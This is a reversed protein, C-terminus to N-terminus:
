PEIGVAPMEVLVACLRVIAKATWFMVVGVAILIVVSPLDNWIERGINHLIQLTRM